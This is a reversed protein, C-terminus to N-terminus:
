FGWELLLNLYHGTIEIKQLDGPNALSDLPPLNDDPTSLYAASDRRYAYGMYGAVNRKLKMGGMVGFQYSFSPVIDLGNPTELGVQSRYVRANFQVGYTPTLARELDFGVHPGLTAIKGVESETLSGLRGKLEVMEKYTVGGSGRFFWPGRSERWVLHADASAFTYNRGDILFGSLDAVGFVGLKQNPRHYGLGLRGTGGFVNLL